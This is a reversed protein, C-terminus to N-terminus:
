CKCCLGCQDNMSEQFISKLDYEARVLIIDFRILIIKLNLHCVMM